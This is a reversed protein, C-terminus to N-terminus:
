RYIHRGRLVIGNFYFCPPVKLLVHICNRGWENKPWQCKKVAENTNYPMVETWKSVRAVCALCCSCSSCSSCSCCCSWCCCSDISRPRIAVVVSEVFSNGLGGKLNSSVLRWEWHEKKTKIKEAKGQDLGLLISPSSLFYHSHIQGRLLTSQLETPLLSSPPTRAGGGGGEGALASKEMM